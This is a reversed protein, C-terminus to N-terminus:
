KEEQMLKQSIRALVALRFESNGDVDFRNFLQEIEREIKNAQKEATSPLLSLM